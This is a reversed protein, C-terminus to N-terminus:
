SGDGDGVGVLGPCLMNRIFDIESEPGNGNSLDHM